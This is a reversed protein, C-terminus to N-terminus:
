IMMILATEIHVADLMPQRRGSGETPLEINCAIEIAHSLAHTLVTHQLAVDTAGSEM